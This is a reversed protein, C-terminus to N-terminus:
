QVSKVFHLTIDCMVNQSFQAIFFFIRLCPRKTAFPMFHGAHLIHLVDLKGLKRENCPIMNFFNVKFMCYVIFLSFAIHPKHMQMPTKYRIRIGGM